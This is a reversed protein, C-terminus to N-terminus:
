SPVLHTAANNMEEKLVLIERGCIQPKLRISEIAQAYRDFFRRYFGLADRDSEWSVVQAVSHTFLELMSCLIITGAGHYESPMDAPASRNNITSFDCM